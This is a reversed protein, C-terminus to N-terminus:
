LVGHALILYSSRTTLCYCCCCCLRGVNVRTLLFAGLALGVHLYATRRSGVDVVLFVATKIVWSAHQNSSISSISSLCCLTVVEVLMYWGYSSATFSCAAPSSCWAGCTTSSSPPKSVSTHGASTILRISHMVVCNRLSISSPCNGVRVNTRRRQRGDQQMCERLRRALSAIRGVMAALGSHLVHLLFPRECLALCFSGKGIRPDELDEVHHVLHEEIALLDRLSREVVSQLHRGENGAGRICRAQTELGMCWLLLCMWSATCSATARKCTGRLLKPMVQLLLPATAPVNRMYSGPASTHISQALISSWCPANIVCWTKRSCTGEPRGMGPLMGWSCSYASSAEAACQM